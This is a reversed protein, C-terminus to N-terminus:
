WRSRARRTTYPASLSVELVLAAERRRPRRVRLSRTDSRTARRGAGRSSRSSPPSLPRNTRPFSSPAAPRRRNWGSACARPRGRSCRQTSPSPAAFVARVEDNLEGGASVVTQDQADQSAIDEAQVGLVAAVAQARAELTAQGAPAPRPGSRLDDPGLGGRGGCRLRNRVRAVPPGPLDSAVAPLDSHIARGRLVAATATM